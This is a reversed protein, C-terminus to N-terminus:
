AVDFLYISLRFSSCKVSRNRCFVEDRELLSWEGSLGVGGQSDLATGVEWDERQTRPNGESMARNVPLHILHPAMGMAMVEVEQTAAVEVAEVGDGGGRLEEDERRHRGPERDM